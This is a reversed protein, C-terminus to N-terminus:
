ICTEFKVQSRQSCGVVRPGLGACKVGLVRCVIELWLYFDLATYLHSEAHGCGFSARLLRRLAGGLAHPAAAPADRIASLHVAYSVDLAVLFTRARVPPEHLDLSSQSVRGLASLRTPSRTLPAAAVAARSVPSAM